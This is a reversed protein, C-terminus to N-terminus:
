FKRPAPTKGALEVKIEKCINMVADTGYMVGTLGDIFEQFQDATIGERVEWICFVPGELAIPCFAHAYFGAELNKAIAEDWDGGPAMKAQVANWWEQSKGSRFEHQVHFFKSAM